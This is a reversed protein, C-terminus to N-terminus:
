LCVPASKFVHFINVLPFMIFSGLFSGIQIFVGCWFLRSESNEAGKQLVTAFVTRLYSHLASGGVSLVVLMVKGWISYQLVPSPSMKALVVIVGTLASSLFTLSALSWVRTPEILLPLFCILPSAINSLTLAFHYTAQSYPLAAYSQISPVIGNMQANVIATLFLLFGFRCSEMKSTRREQLTFRVNLPCSEDVPLEPRSDTPKQESSGEKGLPSWHLLVFSVTATILWALMILNYESVGFRPPVPEKTLSGNVYVCEDNGQLLSILSPFLASLGMGVFYATLYSMNCSSMYPMFLVNSTSNVLAMGFLLVILAISRQQGYFFVTYWWFLAMLGTCLCCFILLILILPATPLSYQTCKHIVSYILPGICAIQVTASLYSPLSWGEPLQQTLFPLQMWVSNTSLWSTSGFLVVLIYTIVRVM